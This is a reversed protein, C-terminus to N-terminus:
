IESFTLFQTAKNTFEQVCNNVAVKPFRKTNAWGFLVQQIQRLKSIFNYLKPKGKADYYM